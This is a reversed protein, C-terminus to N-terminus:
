WVLQIDNIFPSHNVTYGTVQIQVSVEKAISTIPVNFKLSYESNQTVLIPESLTVVVEESILAVEISSINAKLDNRGGLGINVEKYIRFLESNVKSTTVQGIFEFYEEVGSDLYEDKNIIDSSPHLQYIKELRDWFLTETTDKFVDTNSAYNGNFYINNGYFVNHQGFAPVNGIHNIGLDSHSLITYNISVESSGGVTIDTSNQDFLSFYVECAGEDVSLGLSCNYIVVNQVNSPELSIVEIGASEDGNIELNAIRNNGKLQFLTSSGINKITTSSHGQGYLSLEKKVIVTGNFPYEGEQFLIIDGPYANYISETWTSSNDDPDLKQVETMGVRGASPGGYVGIDNRVGEISPVDAALINDYRARDQFDVHNIGKDILISTSADGKPLFDIIDFFYPNNSIWNFDGIQEEQNQDTPDLTMGLVPAFSNNVFLNHKVLVQPDGPPIAYELLIGLTHRSIVNNYIALNTSEKVHIGFNDANTIINNYFYSNVTQEAKIANYGNKIINNKVTVGQSGFIRINEEQVGNTSILRNRQITVGNDSDYIFVSHENATVDINEIVGEVRLFQVGRDVNEIKCNKILIGKSDKSYIGYKFYRGDIQLGDIVIDELNDISLTTNSFGPLPKIITKFESPNRIWNEANYGGIIRLGSKLILVEEYFSEREAVMITDGYNAETIAESISDYYRGTNQIKVTKIETELRVGDDTGGNDSEQIDMNTYTFETQTEFSSDEEGFIKTGDQDIETKYMGVLYEVHTIKEGIQKSYAM